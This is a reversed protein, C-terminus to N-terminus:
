KNGVTWKSRFLCDLQSLQGWCHWSPLVGTMQSWYVLLCTPLFDIATLKVLYFTLMHNIPKLVLFHTTRRILQYRINKFYNTWDLHCEKWAICLHQFDSWGSLSIISWICDYLYKFFIMLYVNVMYLTCNIMCAIMFLNYHTKYILPSRKCM